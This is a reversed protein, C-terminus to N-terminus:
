MTESNKITGLILLFANNAKNKLKSRKMIAPLLPKTIHPKNNEKLWKKKKQHM